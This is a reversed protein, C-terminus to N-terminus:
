TQWNRKTFLEMLRRAMIKTQDNPIVNRYEDLNEEFEQLQKKVDELMETAIKGALMTSELRDDLCGALATNFTIINPKVDRMQM